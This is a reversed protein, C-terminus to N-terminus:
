VSRMRLYLNLLLEGLEAESARAVRDRFDKPTAGVLDRMVVAWDEAGVEAAGAVCQRWATVQGRLDGAQVHLDLLEGLRAQLYGEIQRATESKLRRQSNLLALHYLGLLLQRSSESELNPLHRLSQVLPNRVNLLLEMPKSQIRGAVEGALEHISAGVLPSNLLAHFHDLAEAGPQDLLVCALSEPAFQRLSPKLNPLNHAELTAKLGQLVGAFKEVAEADPEAYLQRSNLHDLPRREVTQHHLDAYKELVTRDFSYGANIALLHNASCIQFFQTEDGDFAFYYLPKSGSPLPKQRELYEALSLTGENTKFPLRDIVAAFFGDDRLALGKIGLQHWNCLRHFYGPDRQQLELLAQTITEGLARRLRHYAGDRQVNDRAATPQLDVDLIGRVFTAWEPLLEADNLRICMRRVYLDVLGSSGVHPIPQDTIYLVGRARPQVLNVPIVLLPRDAFRRELFRGHAALREEETSWHDQHWPANRVNVPGQGNVYIPVSLFDGFLRTTRVLEEERLFHEFERKLTLTIETGRDPAENTPSVRYEDDGHSLWHFGVDSGLKRTFVDIREAVVFASLLGVGFQGITETSVGASALRASETATGSRGITSLYEHIDQEDMGIGNDSFCITRDPVSTVIDIRPTSQPEVAQLRQCGDHANQLLERIFVDASTYLNKALLSVLGTFSTQMKPM